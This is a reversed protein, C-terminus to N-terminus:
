NTVQDINDANTRAARGAEQLTEVFRDFTPKLGEWETRFSDAKNGTWYGGSDTCATQLSTIVGQLQTADGDFKTALERLRALDAGNMTM